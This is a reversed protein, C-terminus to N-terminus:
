LNSSRLIPTRNAAPRVSKVSEVTKQIGTAIEGVTVCDSRLPRITNLNFISVAVHMDKEGGKLTWQCCLFIASAEHVTFLTNNKKTNLEGHM